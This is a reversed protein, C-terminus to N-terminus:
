LRYLNSVPPRIVDPCLLRIWNIDHEGANALPYEWSCHTATLTSAFFGNSSHFSVWLLSKATSAALPDGALVRGTNVATACPLIAATPASGIQTPM